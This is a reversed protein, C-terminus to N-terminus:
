LELKDFKFGHGLFPISFLGLFKLDRLTLASTNWPM